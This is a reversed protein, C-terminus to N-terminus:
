EGIEVGYLLEHSPMFNSQSQFTYGVKPRAFRFHMYDLSIAIPPPLHFITLMATWRLVVLPPTMRPATCKCKCKCIVGRTGCPDRGSALHWPSCYNFNSKILKSIASTTETTAATHKKNITAIPIGPPTAAAAATKITVDAM